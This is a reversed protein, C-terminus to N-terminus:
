VGLEALAQDVGPIEMTFQIVQGDLRTLEVKASKAGKLQRSFNPSIEARAKCSRTTCEVYDAKVPKGGDLSVTVGPEIRVETPTVFEALLKGDKSFGILWVLINSNNKKAVVRYSAGCLKRPPEGSESCQVTWGGYKTTTTTTKTGATDAQAVTTEQASAPLTAALGSTAVCALLGAATFSHYLARNIGNM